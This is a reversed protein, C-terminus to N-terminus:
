LKIYSGTHTLGDWGLDEDVEGGTSILFKWGEELPIVGDASSTYVFKEDIRGVIVEVPIKGGLMRTLRDGVKVKELKKM